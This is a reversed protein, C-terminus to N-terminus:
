RQGPAQIRTHQGKAVVWIDRMRPRGGERLERTVNLWRIPMVVAKGRESPKMSAVEERSVTHQLATLVHQVLAPRQDIRSNVRTRSPKMSRSPVPYSRESASARTKKHGAAMLASQSCRGVRQKKKVPAPSDSDFYEEDGEAEQEAAAESAEEDPDSDKGKEDEYEDQEENEEIAERDAADQGDEEQRVVATRKAKQRQATPQQILDSTSHGKGVGRAARASKVLKSTFARPRLSRATGLCTMQGQTLALTRQTAARIKRVDAAAATPAAHFTPHTAAEESTEMQATSAQQSSRSQHAEEPPAVEFLEHAAKLGSQLTDLGHLLTQERLLTQQLQAELTAIPDVVAAATGAAADLAAAATQGSSPLREDGREQSKPSVWAHGSSRQKDQMRIATPHLAQSQCATPLRSGHATAASAQAEALQAGGGVCTSDAADKESASAAMGLLQLM